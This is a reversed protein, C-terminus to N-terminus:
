TKFKVYELYKVPTIVDCSPSCFAKSDRITNDVDIITYLMLNRQCTRTSKFIGIIIYICPYFYSVSFFCLFHKHLDLRICLCQCRNRWCLIGFWGLEFLIIIFALSINDILCFPFCCLLKNFFSTTFEYNNCFSIDLILASKEIFQHLFQEICRSIFIDNNYLFLCASIM